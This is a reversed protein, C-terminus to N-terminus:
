HKKQTHLADLTIISNECKFIESIDQLVFIESKKENSYKEIYLTLESEQCFLSLVAEFKQFKPLSKDVTSALAKGDGCIWSFKNKPYLSLAWDNFCNIFSDVDISNFIQRVTEHSPMPHKLEFEKQFLQYNDKGFRSIGRYGINGCIYSLISIALFEPLQIRRGSVSRPDKISSLHELLTM